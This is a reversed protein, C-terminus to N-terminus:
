HAERRGDLFEWLDEARIKYPTLRTPHRWAKLWDARIWRRVTESTVGAAEAAEAVTLEENGNVPTV